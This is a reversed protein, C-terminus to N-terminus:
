SLALSRLVQYPLPESSLTSHDDSSTRFNNTVVVLVVLLDSGLRRRAELVGREQNVLVRRPEVGEDVPLGGDLEVVVAASALEVGIPAIAPPTTPPMAPTARMATM